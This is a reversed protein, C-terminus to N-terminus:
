RGQGALRLDDRPLCWRSPMQGIGGMDVIVRDLGAVAHEHLEEMQPAKQELGGVALLDGKSFIAGSLPRRRGGGSLALVRWECM